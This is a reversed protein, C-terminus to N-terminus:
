PALRQERGPRWVRPPGGDAEPFLWVELPELRASLSPSRGLAEHVMELRPLAEQSMRGAGIAVIPVVRIKSQEPIGWDSPPAALGLRRRQACM